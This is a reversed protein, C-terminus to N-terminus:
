ARFPSVGPYVRYHILAGAILEDTPQGLHRTGDRGHVRRPNGHVPRCRRCPRAPLCSCRAPRTRLALTTTPTSRKVSSRTLRPPPRDLHALLAATPNNSICRRGNENPPLADPRRSSGSRGRLLRLQIPVVSGAAAESALAPDGRPQGQPTVARRREDGTVPCRLHVVTHSVNLIARHAIVYRRKTTMNEQPSFEYVPPEGRDSTEAIKGSLGSVDGDADRVGKMARNIETLDGM